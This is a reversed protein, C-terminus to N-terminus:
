FGQGAVWGALEQRATALQAPTATTSGNTILAYHVTGAAASDSLLLREAGAGGPLPALTVPANADKSPGPPAATEACLALASM